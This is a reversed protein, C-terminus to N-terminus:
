FLAKRISPLRELNALGKSSFFAKSGNYFISKKIFEQVIKFSVNAQSTDPSLSSDLHRSM